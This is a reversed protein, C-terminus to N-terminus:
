ENSLSVYNICEDIERVLHLLKKRASKMNGGEGGSLAHVTLLDDYESKLAQFEGRVQELTAKGQELNLTLTKIEEKQWDCLSMLENM